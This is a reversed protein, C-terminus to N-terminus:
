LNRGSKEDPHRTPIVHPATKWLDRDMMVKHYAVIFENIGFRM